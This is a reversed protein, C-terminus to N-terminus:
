VYNVNTGPSNALSDVHNDTKAKKRNRKAKVKKAKPRIVDSQESDIDDDSNESAPPSPSRARKTNKKGVKGVRVVCYMYVAPVCPMAPLIQITQTNAHSNNMYEHTGKKNSSPNTFQSNLRLVPSASRESSESEDDESSDENLIPNPAYTRPSKGGLVPRSPNPAPLQGAQKGQQQAMEQSNDVDVSGLGFAQQSEAVFSDDNPNSEWPKTPQTPANSSTSGGVTATSEISYTSDNNRDGKNKNEIVTLLYRLWAGTNRKKRDAVEMIGESFPSYNKQPEYTRYNGEKL